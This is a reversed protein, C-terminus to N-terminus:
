KVNLQWQKWWNELNSLDRQLLNGEANNVIEYLKCDDAFLNCFNQKVEDPMDNIFVVFLLPGLMSGQPIGSIFIRWESTADEVRASQTRGMLFSRIWNFVNGTIGMAELKILLKM